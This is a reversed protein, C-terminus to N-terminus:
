LIEGENVGELKLHVISKPIVFIFYTLILSPFSVVFLNDVEFFAHVAFAVIISILLYSTQIGIIDKYKFLIFIQNLFLYIISSFLIIGGTVIYTLYMNHFGIGAGIIDDRLLVREIGIGRGFVLTFSDMYSIAMEWLTDRGTLGSNTRLFYTEIFNQLTLSNIYIIMCIVLFLVFYIFKKKDVWLILLNYVVLSVAISLLTTRSLTLLACVLFLMSISIFYKKSVTHMYFKIVISFLGAMLVFAFQNRQGWFSSWQNSINFNSDNRFSFINSNLQFLLAFISSIISVYIFINLILNLNSQKLQGKKSHNVFVLYGLIFTIFNIFRNNIFGLSYSYYNAFFQFIFLPVILFVDIKTLYIKNLIALLFFALIISGYSLGVYFFSPIIQINSQGFSITLGVVLLILYIKDSNIKM